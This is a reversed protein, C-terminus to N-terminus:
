ERTITPAHIAFAGQECAFCFSLERSGSRRTLPRSVEADRARNPGFIKDIM